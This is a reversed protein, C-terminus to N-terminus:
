FRIADLRGYFYKESAEQLEIPSGTPSVTHRSLLPSLSVSRATSVLGAQAAGASGMTPM